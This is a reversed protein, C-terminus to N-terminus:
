NMKVISVRGYINYYIIITLLFAAWIHINIESISLSAPSRTKFMSNEMFDRQSILNNIISNSNKNILLNSYNDFSLVKRYTNNNDIQYKFDFIIKLILIKFLVKLWDFYSIRMNEYSYNIKFSNFLNLYELFCIINSDSYNNDQKMFESNKSFYNISKEGYDKTSYEKREELRDKDILDRRDVLIRDCNDKVSSIRVLRFVIFIKDKVQLKKLIGIKRGKTKLNLQGYEEYL